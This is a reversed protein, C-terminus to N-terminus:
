VAAEVRVFADKRQFQHRFSSIRDKIYWKLGSKDFLIKKEGGFFLPAASNQAAGLFRDTLFPRM